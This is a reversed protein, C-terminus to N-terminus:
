VNRGGLNAILTELSQKLEDAERPDDEPGLADAERLINQYRDWGGAVFAKAATASFGNSKLLREIDRKSVEGAKVSDILAHSNAGITVLSVEYLDIQKLYRNDGRMEFDKVRYGISLGDLAGEKILEYADRGKSSKTALKGKLYLGREDERVDAWRGVPEWTDHQWLMKPMREQLSASFSGREVVDGYADENGFVSGYGTIVGEDEEAKIELSLTKHEM